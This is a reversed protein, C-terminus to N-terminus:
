ASLVNRSAIVGEAFKWMDFGGRAGIQWDHRPECRVMVVRNDDVELSQHEYLVASGSGFSWVIAVRLEPCREKDLFMELFSQSISRLVCLHTLNPLYLVPSIEDDSATSLIDLHTLKSFVQFLAPSPDASLRTLPLQLLSPLHIPKYDVWFALNVVNPFLHLYVGLRLVGILLHRVHHGYRQYTAENFGIPYSGEDSDSLIVIHYRHPILWDFVRKAVLALNKENKSDNYFALIFIDYELEPPLRPPPM